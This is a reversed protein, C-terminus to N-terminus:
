EPLPCSWAPRVPDDLWVTQAEATVTLGFREWSPQGLDEWLAYAREVEDWLRHPGSQECERTGDEGDLSVTARSGDPATFLAATPTYRTDLAFGYTTGEPLSLSALFWPVSEEWAKPPVGTVGTVTSSTDVEVPATPPEVRSPHRMSMFAAYGGDFRGEAVRGDRQLLVLNGAATGIKLDALILGGERVQQVWAYPISAVAVTAEIRDYPAGAPLGLVGDRTALTPAFGLSALRERATDVYDIDVSYVNDDGLVSCLVAANYGTGTGIELVRDGRHIDLLELMRAMLGPMSSSSVGRGHEDVATFLARNAYVADLGEPSDTRVTVWTGTGDQQYYEPVFVHRPVVRFAEQWQPSRVKGAENLEDVLRAARSTWDSM